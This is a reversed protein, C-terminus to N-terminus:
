IMFSSRDAEDAHDAIGQRDELRAVRTVLSTHLFLLGSGHGDERMRGQPLREVDGSLISALVEAKTATM